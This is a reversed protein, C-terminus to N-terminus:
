PRRRASRRVRPAAPSTPASDIAAAPPVRSLRQCTHSDCVPWLHSQSQPRPQPADARLVAAWAVNKAHPRRSCGRRWERRSLRMKPEPEAQFHRRSHVRNELIEAKQHRLVRFKKQGRLPPADCVRFLVQLGRRLAWLAFYPRQWEIGPRTQPRFFARHINFEWFPYM